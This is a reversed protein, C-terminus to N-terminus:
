RPDASSRPLLSAHGVGLVPRESARAALKISLRSRSFHALLAKMEDFRKKSTKLTKCRAQM